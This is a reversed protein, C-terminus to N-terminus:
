SVVALRCGYDAMVADPGCEVDVQRSGVTFRYVDRTQGSLSICLSTTGSVLMRETRPPRPHLALHKCPRCLVERNSLRMRTDLLPAQLGLRHGHVGKGGLRRIGGTFDTRSRGKRRRHVQVLQLTLRFTTGRM